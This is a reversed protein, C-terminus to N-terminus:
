TGEPDALARQLRWTLLVRERRGREWLYLQAAALLVGLAMVFEKASGKASGLPSTFYL